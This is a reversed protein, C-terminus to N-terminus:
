DRFLKKFRAVLPCTVIIPDVESKEILVEILVRLLEAPGIGEVGRLDLYVKALIIVDKASNFVLGEVREVLM